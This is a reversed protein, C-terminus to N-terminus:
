PASKLMWLIVDVGSRSGFQYNGRDVPFFAPNEQGAEPTLFSM